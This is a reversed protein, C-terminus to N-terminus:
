IVKKKMKKFNKRLKELSKRLKQNKVNDLNPILDDNSEAVITFDNQEKTFEVASFFDDKETSTYGLCTSAKFNIKAVAKYGYIRNVKEIIINKQLDLEPGFAGDIEITLTSGLANKPFTMKVPKSLKYLDLGVIEKWNIILKSQAFGRKEFSKQTLQHVFSATSKFGINSIKKNFFFETIKEVKEGCVNHRFILKTVTHGIAQVLNFEDFM